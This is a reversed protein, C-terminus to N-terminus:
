QKSLLKKLEQITEIERQQLYKVFSSQSAKAINLSAIIKTDYLYPEIRLVKGKAFAKTVLDQHILSSKAKIKFGFTLDFNDDIHLKTFNGKFILTISIFSVDLSKAEVNENKYRLGIKFSKDTLVRKNKFDRLEYNIYRPKTLIVLNNKMDIKILTTQVYKNTSNLQFITNKEYSIAIAQIHSVKVTFEDDNFNVINGDCDIPIGKYYNYFKLNTNQTYINKLDSLCKIEEKTPKSKSINILTNILNDINLPKLLIDFIDLDITKLLELDDNDNCLVIIKVDKNINKIDAIMEIGDKNPMTLDTLIIDPKLSIFQELGDEGDYANYLNNFIKGIFRDMQKHLFSSEDVYLLSLDKALIQLKHLNDINM